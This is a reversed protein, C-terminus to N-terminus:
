FSNMEITTPSYTCTYDVGKIQRFIKSSWDQKVYVMIKLLLFVWKVDLLKIGKPFIKTEWLKWLMIKKYINQLEKNIADKWKDANESNM